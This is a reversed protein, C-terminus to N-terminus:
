PMIPSTVRMRLSALETMLENLQMEWTEEAQASREASEAKFEVIRRNSEAAAQRLSAVHCELESNRRYLEVNQSHALRLSGEVIQVQEAVTAIQSQLAASKSRSSNMDPLDDNAECCMDPRIRDLRLPLSYKKPKPEAEHPLEPNDPPPPKARRPDCLSLRAKLCEPKAGKKANTQFNEAGRLLERSRPNVNAFVEQFVNM